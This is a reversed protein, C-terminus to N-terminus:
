NILKVLTENDGVMSPRQLTHFVKRAVNEVLYEMMNQVNHAIWQISRMNSFMLLGKENWSITSLAFFRVMYM